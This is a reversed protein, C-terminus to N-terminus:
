MSYRNKRLTFRGPRPKLWRGWRAGHNFSSYLEGEPGEHGRRPHDKGKGNGRVKYLGSTSYCQWPIDSTRPPFGTETFAKDSYFRMLLLVPNFVQVGANM